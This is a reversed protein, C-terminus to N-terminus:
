EGALLPSPALRRARRAPVTAVVNTLVAIGAILASVLAYPFSADPVAGLSGAFAEFVLRGAVLGAPVGLALPVVSLTTAQWHVARTIWRGDAGLARLVAVDRRRNRVSTVMVHVVTLMALAGLIWALLFPISRIRALNTISGPISGSSGSEGLVGLREATSPPAGPRLSVAATRPMAEPDVSRLGGMTVVGDQGVGDLGEVGPVVALGTVRFQRPQDAGEVTVDSGVGVDLRKAILAGLAIEDDAAPLRGALIKPALDGRVPQMGALGLTVTGVRGQGVGYLLLGTVDPDAELRALLDEPIVEGGQGTILDFNNGFRAGDTVLRGLSSGFVVAGVLIATTAVMGAVVGRVSGRDRRSRAFAFRLGTSLTASGCRAAVSEVLPSPQEAGGIPRALVLAAVIWLLQTLLLAAACLALVGVDVLLGPHPEIRRVFGTPFFSSLGTAVVLALATGAVVPVAARGISEALVQTRSFGIAELRSAEDAPLRVARTVLQGLVVIAALAGVATLLWLGRGQAQVATRVETSVVEAPELRLAEGGPLVDLQSRFAVLDIGPRLRVSMITLAVGVDQDELISPAWVTVPTSSELDTPGDVVGVLVGQFRPGRPGEKAFADFGGQEAQEKTLTTLDVSTGLAVGAAEVFSRTAVFERKDMPDPDRGAVLRRSSFFQRSGAFVLAEVPSGDPKVLAGFVFTIASVSSVGPLAAVEATRPQGGEQQIEGDPNGGQASTYRDPASSTRDAGVAFGLVAGTVAAVVFSLVLMARWQARLARTMRYGVARVVENCWVPVSGSM